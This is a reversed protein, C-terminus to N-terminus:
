VTPWILMRPKESPDAGHQEDTQEQASDPRLGLDGARVPQDAQGQEAVADTDEIAPLEEFPQGSKSTGNPHFWSM